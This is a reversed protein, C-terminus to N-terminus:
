FFLSLPVFLFIIADIYNSVDQKQKLLNQKETTLTSQTSGASQKSRQSDAITRTRYYKFHTSEFTIYDSLHLIFPPFLNM